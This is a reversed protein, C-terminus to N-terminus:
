FFLFLLLKESQCKFKTSRITYNFPLSASLSHKEKTKIILWSKWMIQRPLCQFLLCLFYPFSFSERCTILLFSLSLSFFFNEKVKSIVHERILSFSLGTLLQYVRFWWTNLYLILANKTNCLLWNLTFLMKELWVLSLIFKQLIKVNLKSFSLQSLSNPIQSAIGIPDFFWYFTPIAIQHGNHLSSVQFTIKLVNKQGDQVEISSWINHKKKSQQQTHLKLIMSGLMTHPSHM